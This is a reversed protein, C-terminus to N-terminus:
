HVHQTESYFPKLHNHSDIGVAKIFLLLVGVCEHISLIMLWSFLVSSLQGVHLHCAFVVTVCFVRVGDQQELTEM